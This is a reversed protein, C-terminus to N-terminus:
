ADEREVDVAVPTRRVVADGRARAAKFLRQHLQARVHGRQLLNRREPPGARDERAQLRDVADHATVQRVGQPPSPRRLRWPGALLRRLRGVVDGHEVSLIAQLHQIRPEIDEVDGERQVTKALADCPRHELIPAVPTAEHREGRVEPELVIPRFAVGNALKVYPMNELAHRVHPPLPAVDRDDAAAVEIRHRTRERVLRELAFAVAVRHIRRFLLGGAGCRPGIM